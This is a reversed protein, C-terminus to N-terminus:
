TMLRCMYGSSRIIRKSYLSNLLMNLIRPQTFKLTLSRCHLAVRRNQTSRNGTGGQSKSGPHLRHEQPVATLLTLRSGDESLVLWTSVVYVPIGAAKLPTTLNCLM